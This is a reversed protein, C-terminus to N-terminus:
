SSRARRGACRWAAKWAASTTSFGHAVPSRPTRRASWRPLRLLRDRADADRLRYRKGFEELVAPNPDAFLRASERLALWSDATLEPAFRDYTATAHNLVFAM